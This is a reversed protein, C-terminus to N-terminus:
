HAEQRQDGGEEGTKNDRFGKTRREEWTVVCKEDDM